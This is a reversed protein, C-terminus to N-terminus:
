HHCDSFDSNYHDKHYYHKTDSTSSTDCGGSCKYGYYHKKYGHHKKQRYRYGREQGEVVEGNMGDAGGDNMGNMSEAIEQAVQEVKMGEVAGQSVILRSPDYGLGKVTLAMLQFHDRSVSETRSLIWLQSRNSNGVVAWNTYDTWHIWYNGIRRVNAPEQVQVPVNPFTVYLRGPYRPNPITASGDTSYSSGDSRVCTNRVGLVQDEENWTYNAISRQCGRQFNNPYRAIEWWQGQYLEPYFPNVTPPQSNSNGMTTNREKCINIKSPESFYKTYLILM